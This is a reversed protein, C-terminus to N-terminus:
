VGQPGAGGESRTACHAFTEGSANLRDSGDYRGRWPMCAEVPPLAKFKKLVQVGGAARYGM